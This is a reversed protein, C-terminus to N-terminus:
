LFHNQINPGEGELTQRDLMVTALRVIEDIARNAANLHRGLLVLVFARALEKLRSMPFCTLAAAITGVLVVLAARPNLFILTNRVGSLAAFVITATGLLLGIPFTLSM